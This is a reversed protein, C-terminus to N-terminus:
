LINGIRLYFNGYNSQNEPKGDNDRKSKERMEEDKIAKEQYEKFIKLDSFIFHFHLLFM